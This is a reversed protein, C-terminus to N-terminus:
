FGSVRLVPQICVLFGANSRTCVFYCTSGFAIPICSPSSIDSTLRCATSWSHCVLVRLRFVSSSLHNGEIWLDISIFLVFEALLIIWPRSCISLFSWGELMVKYSTFLYVLSSNHTLISSWSWHGCSSSGWVSNWISIWTNNTALANQTVSSQAFSTLCCIANEWQIWVTIWWVCDFITSSQLFLQLWISSILNLSITQVNIFLSQILYSSRPWICHWIKHAVFLVWILVKLLFSSSFPELFQSDNLASIWTFHFQTSVSSNSFALCVVDIIEMSRLCGSIVEKTSGDILLVKQFWCVSIHHLSYSCCCFPGLQVFTTRRKWRFM